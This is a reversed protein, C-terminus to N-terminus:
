KDRKGTGQFEGHPSDAGDDPQRRRCWVLRAAVIPVIVVVIWSCALVATQLSAPLASGHPGAVVLVLFTCLLVLTFTTGLWVGFAILGDRTTSVSRM